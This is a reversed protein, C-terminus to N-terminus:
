QQERDKGVAVLALQSRRDSEDIWTQDIAPSVFLTLHSRRSTRWAAFYTHYTHGHEFPRPHLRSYLYTWSTHFSLSLFLSKFFPADM